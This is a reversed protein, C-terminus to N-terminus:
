HCNLPTNRPILMIPLYIVIGLLSIILGFITGISLSFWFSDTKSDIMFPIFGLATSLITMIIPIIKGNFAKLYAKIITNQNKHISNYDNLLYIVSNCTLGSLLIFAGIGGQGMPINFFYFSLFIGIYSIPIVTIVILSQTLSNLLISCILYNLLIVLLLQLFPFGNKELQMGSDTINSIEYGSPLEKTLYKVEEKQINDALGRDGLYNYELFLKYSQNYRTIDQPIQQKTMSILQNIKAKKDGLDVFSHYFNWSDPLHNKIPKLLINQISGDKKLYKGISNGQSMNQNICSFLQSMDYHGAAMREKDANLIFEDYNSESNYIPMICVDKVRSHIQLRKQLQQTYDMLRDYNYGSLEIKYERSDDYLNNNFGNDVGTIMWTANGTNVAERILENNLKAPIGSKQGEETFNVTLFANQASVSTEYMQIGQYKAVIHEMRKITSDMEEITSGSPLTAVINLVSQDRKFFNNQGSSLSREAFLQLSGGCIKDAYGRISSEFVHNFIKTWRTEGELHYPILFVPLGFALVILIIFLKKKRLSFLIFKEYVKNWKLITHKKHMSVAKPRSIQMKELLAPILFLSVAMSVTLNIIMIRAFDLLNLRYTDDLLFVVSLSAITTLTSALIAVFINLKGRYLLHDAMVIINDLIMGLSVTIGAISYLQIEVDLLKYFIFAITLNAILSITIALLYKINHSTLYVFFLLILFAALSRVFVNTLEKVIKQSADSELIIKYNIPMSQQMLKIQQRIKKSLNIQNANEDAFVSITVTNQGNIRFYSYAESEEEKIKLLEGLRFERGSSSYVLINQLDLNKENSGKLYIQMQKKSGNVTVQGFGLYHSGLCSMVANSINAVSIGAKDLNELDYELVTEMPQYGSVRIEKIGKIQILKPRIVQEAYEGMASSQEQSHLTYTIFPSGAKDDSYTMEISPYSVGEPLQPWIQRIITSVEFRVADM